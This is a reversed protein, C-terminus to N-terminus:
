RPWKDQPIPKVSPSYRSQSSHSSVSLPPVGSKRPNGTRKIWRWCPYILRFVPYIVIVALGGSICQIITALHLNKKIRM